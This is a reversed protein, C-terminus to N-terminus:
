RRSDVLWSACSFAMFRTTWAPAFGTVERWTMSSHCRSQALLPLIFRSFIHNQRALYANTGHCMLHYYNCLHNKAEAQHIKAVLVSDEQLYVDFELVLSAKGAIGRESGPAPDPKKRLLFSGDPELRVCDPDTEWEAAFEQPLPQMPLPTEAMAVATRAINEPSVDTSIPVIAEAPRLCTQLVSALRASYTHPALRRICARRVRALLQEDQLYREVLAEMEEMTHFAPMEPCLTDLEPRHESIVLSGCGLGEYM